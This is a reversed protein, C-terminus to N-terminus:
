VEGVSQMDIPQISKIGSFVPVNEVTEGVLGDRTALVSYSAYPPAGNGIESNLKPPAPLVIDSVVGDSNTVGTHFTHRGDAFDKYVLINVNVLPISGIGSSAQIKLVGQDTNEAQFEAYTQEETSPENGMDLVQPDTPVEIQGDASLELEGSSDEETVGEAEDSVGMDISEERRAPASSSPYQVDSVTDEIDSQARLEGDVEGSPARLSDTSIAAATGQSEEKLTETMATPETYIHKKKSIYM